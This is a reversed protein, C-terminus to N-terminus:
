EILKEISAGNIIKQINQTKMEPNYIEKHCNSCLLKCKIAEKMIFDWNRNSLVRADLKSEKEDPSIHHFELASINKNYGCVNCCGGMM